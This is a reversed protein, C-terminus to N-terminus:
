HSNTMTLNYKPLFTARLYLRIQFNRSSLKALCIAGRRELHLTLGLADGAIPRRVHSQLRPVGAEPPPRFGASIVRM